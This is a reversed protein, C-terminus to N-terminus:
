DSFLDEDEITLLNLNLIKFNKLEFISNVLSYSLQGIALTIYALATMTIDLGIFNSYIDATKSKLSM